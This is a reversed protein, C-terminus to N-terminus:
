MAQRALALLLPPLERQVRGRQAEEYRPHLASLKVSIGPAHALDRRAVRAGIAAIAERYREAYRAADAATRAAEGLMDFSYRYGRAEEPAARALAEGITRGMVFQHGVIRMAATVAQRLVPEGTRAVLRRLVAGLEQEAPDDHLLRGT